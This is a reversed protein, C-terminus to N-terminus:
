SPTTGRPAPETPRTRMHSLMWTGKDDKVWKAEFKGQAEFVNGNPLDVKQAFSGNQVVAGEEVSTTDVKLSYAKITLARFSNLFFGITGSGTLVKGGQHSLEGSDGFFNGVAEFDMTRMATEYANLRALAQQQMAKDAASNAAPM